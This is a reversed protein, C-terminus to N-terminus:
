WRRKYAHASQVAVGIRYFCKALSRCESRTSEFGRKPRSATNSATVAAYVHGHICTNRSHYSPSLLLPFMSHNDNSANFDGWNM